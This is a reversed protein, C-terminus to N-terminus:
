IACHQPCHTLSLLGLWQNSGIIIPGVRVQDHNAWSVNGSLISGIMAHLTGHQVLWSSNVGVGVFETIQTKTIIARAWPAANGRHTCCLSKERYTYIRHM